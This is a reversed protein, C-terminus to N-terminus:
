VIEHIISIVGVITFNPVEMPVLLDLIEDDLDIPVLFKKKKELFRQISYGGLKEALVVEKQKLEVSSDVVLIDGDKIGSDKLANGKVLYYSKSISNDKSSYFNLRIGESTQIINM